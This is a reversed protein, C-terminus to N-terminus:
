HPDSKGVWVEALYHILRWITCSWWAMLGGLSGGLAMWLWGVEEIVLGGVGEGLVWDLKSEWCVMRLGGQVFVM